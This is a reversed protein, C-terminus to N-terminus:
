ICMSTHVCAYMCVCVCVCACVRWCDCVHVCPHACLCVCVCVGVVTELLEQLLGQIKANDEAYAQRLNEQQEWLNNLIAFQLVDMDESRGKQREEKKGESLENKTKRDMNRMSQMLVDM